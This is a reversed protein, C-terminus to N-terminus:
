DLDAPIRRTVTDGRANVNRQDVTNSRDNAGPHRPEPPPEGRRRPDREEFMDGSGGAAAGYY